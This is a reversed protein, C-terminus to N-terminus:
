SFHVFINFLIASTYLPNHVDNDDGSLLWSTQEPKFERAGKEPKVVTEVTKQSTCQESM